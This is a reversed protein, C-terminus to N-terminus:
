PVHVTLEVSTVQTHRPEVGSPRGVASTTITSGAPSATAPDALSALM